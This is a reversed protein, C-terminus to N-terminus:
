SPLDEKNELRKMAEIVMEQLQTTNPAAVNKGNDEHAIGLILVVGVGLIATLVEESIGLKEGVYASIVTALAM